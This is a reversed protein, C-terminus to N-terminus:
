QLVELEDSMSTKIKKIEAEFSKRLAEMQDEYM